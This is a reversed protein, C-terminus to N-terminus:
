NANHNHLLILLLLHRLSNLFRPLACLGEGVFVNFVGEIFVYPLLSTPDFFVNVKSYKGKPFFEM